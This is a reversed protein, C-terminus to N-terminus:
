QSLNKLYTKISEEAWCQREALETEGGSAIDM